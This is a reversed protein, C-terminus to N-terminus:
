LITDWYNNECKGTGGGWKISSFYSPILKHGTLEICVYITNWILFPVLLRKARNKINEKFTTSKKFMLFGSIAMFLPVATGMLSFIPYLYKPSEVNGYGFINKGHCYVVFVTALVKTITISNYRRM